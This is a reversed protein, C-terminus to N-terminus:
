DYLAEGKEYFEDGKQWYNSKKANGILRGSYVYSSIFKTLYNYDVTNPNDSPQHLYKFIEDDFSTCAMAYMVGPVGAQAFSYHDSRAYLNQDLVQDPKADLGFSKCAQDIEDGSTFEQGICEGKENFEQIVFGSTFKNYGM